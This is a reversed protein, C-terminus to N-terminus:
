NGIWVYTYSLARLDRKVDYGRKCLGAPILINKMSLTISQNCRNTKTGIERATMQGKGKMVSEIPLVTEIHVKPTIIFSPTMKPRKYKEVTSAKIIQDFAQMFDSM